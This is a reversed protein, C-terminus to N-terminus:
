SLLKGLSEERRLDATQTKLAPLQQEMRAIAEAVRRRSFLSYTLEANKIAMVSAAMEDSSADIDKLSALLNPPLPHLAQAQLAPAGALAALALTGGAALRRLSSLTM